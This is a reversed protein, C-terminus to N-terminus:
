SKYIEVVSANDSTVFGRYMGESNFPLALNGFADVALLGGEGGIERLYELRRTTDNDVRDVRHVVAPAAPRMLMPLLGLLGLLGLWGWDFGQDVTREVTTTNSNRSNSNTQANASMVSLLVVLCLALVNVRIFKSCSSLNM